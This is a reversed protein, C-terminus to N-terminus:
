RNIRRKFLLRFFPITKQNKFLKNCLYKHRKLINNKKSNYKFFVFYFFSVFQCFFFLCVFLIQSISKRPLRLFWFSKLIEQVKSTFVVQFIDQYYVLFFNCLFDSHPFNRSFVPFYPGSFVRYKSANTDGIYKKFLVQVVKLLLRVLVMVELFQHEFNLYNIYICWTSFNQGAIKKFFAQKSFRSIDCSKLM